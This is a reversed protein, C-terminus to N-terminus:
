EVGEIQDLDDAIPAPGSKLHDWASGSEIEKLKWQCWALNDLWQDRDPMPPDLVDDLSHGSVPWAIGGRDLLIAPIGALIADVAANSNYAVVCMAGDLDAMLGAKQAKHPMNPDPHPRFKIPTDTITEIKTAIAAIWADHDLGRLATAGPIQGCVLIHESGPNWPKFSWHYKNRRTAPMGPDVLFDARGNQGDYGISRWKSRDGLYGVDMSIFHNGDARQRDQILKTEHHWGSFIALDCETSYFSYIIQPDEGHARLGNAFAHGHIMHQEHQPNIHVCIRM